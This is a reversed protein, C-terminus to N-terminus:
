GILSRKVKTLTNKIKLSSGYKKIERIREKSLGNAHDSGSKLLVLESLMDYDSDEKGNKKLSAITERLVMDLDAHFDVDPCVDKISSNDLTFESDKDYIMDEYADTNYEKLLEPNLFVFSPKKGVINGIVEFIEDYTYASDDSIHYFNGSAKENLFLGTVANGFVSTHCLAHHSEPDDFRIVPKGKEIRDILTYAGRKSAFGVPIRTDGFTITPRIVVWDFSYESSHSQLYIEAKRKNIGYAWKIDDPNIDIDEKLNEGPHPYVSDTSIYILQRCHDNIIRASRAMHNEDFILTEVIVDFGQGAVAEADQDNFWDGQVFRAPIDKWKGSPANRCIVTVDHGAKVASETIAGGIIGMGGVVLVKM